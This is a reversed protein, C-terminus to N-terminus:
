QRRTLKLKNLLDLAREQPLGRGIWICLDDRCGSLHRFNQSTLRVRDCLYPSINRDLNAESYEVQQSDYYSFTVPLALGGIDIKGDQQKLCDYEADLVEFQVPSSLVVQDIVSYHTRAEDTHILLTECSAHDHKNAKHCYSNPGWSTPDSTRREGIYGAPIRVQYPGLLYVQRNISRRQQPLGALQSAALAVSAVLAATVLLAIPTMRTM